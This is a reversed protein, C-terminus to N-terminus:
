PRAAAAPRAVEANFARVGNLVWAGYAARDVTLVCAASTRQINGGVFLGLVTGLANAAQPTADAARTVSGAKETVNVVQAKTAVGPIGRM